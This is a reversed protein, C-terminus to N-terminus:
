RVKDQRRAAQQAEQRGDPPTEQHAAPQGLVFRAGPLWSATTQNLCLADGHCAHYREAGFASLLVVFLAAIILATRANDM